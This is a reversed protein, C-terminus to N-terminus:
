VLRERLEVGRRRALHRRTRRVAGDVAAVVEVQVCPVDDRRRALYALHHREVHRDRAVRVEERAHQRERGDHVEAFPREVEDLVLVVQSLLDPEVDACEVLQATDPPGSRGRATLHLADCLLDVPVTLRLLLVRREPDAKAM